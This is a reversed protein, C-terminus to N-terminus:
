LSCLQKADDKTETFILIKKNKNKGVFDKLM